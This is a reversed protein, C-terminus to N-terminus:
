TRKQVKRGYHGNHGFHSNGSRAVLEGIDDVVGPHGMRGHEEGAPATTYRRHDIRVVQLPEGM